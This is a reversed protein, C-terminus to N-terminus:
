SVSAGPPLPQALTSLVADLQEPPLQGLEEGAGATAAATEMATGACRLAQQLRELPSRLRDGGLSKVIPALVEELTMYRFMSSFDVLMFDAITRKEDITSMIRWHTPPEFVLYHGPYFAAEFRFAGQFLPSAVVVYFTQPEELPTLTTEAAPTNGNLVFSM